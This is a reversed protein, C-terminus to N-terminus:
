STQIGQLHSHARINRYNNDDYDIRTPHSIEHDDDVDLSYIAM